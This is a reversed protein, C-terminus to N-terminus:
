SYLCMTHKWQQSQILSHLNSLSSHILKLHVKGWLCLRINHYISWTSLCTLFCTITATFHKFFVQLSYGHVPTLSLLVPSSKRISVTWFLRSSKLNYVSFTSINTKNIINIRITKISERKEPKVYHHKAECLDTLSAELLEQM